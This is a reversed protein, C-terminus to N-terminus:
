YPDIGGTCCSDLSTEGMYDDMDSGADQVRGDEPNDLVPQDTTGEEAAAGTLKKPKGPAREQKKVATQQSPTLSDHLDQLAQQALQSGVPERKLAAEAEYAPMAGGLAVGGLLTLLLQSKRM